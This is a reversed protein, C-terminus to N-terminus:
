AGGELDAVPVFRIALSEVDDREIRAPVAQVEMGLALRDEPVGLEIEEIIGPAIEAEGVVLPPRLGPAVRTHITIFELLRARGSLREEAVRDPAAGCLPCGYPAPPFSLGDCAACRSARLSLTRGDEALACLDPKELPTTM